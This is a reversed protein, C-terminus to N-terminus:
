TNRLWPRWPCPLGPTPRPSARRRGAPGWPRDHGLGLHGERAQLLRFLNGVDDGIELRMGSRDRMARAGPCIAHALDPAALTVVDVDDDGAHRPMGRRGTEVADVEQVIRQRFDIVPRDIKGGFEEPPPQLKGNRAEEIVPPGSTASRMLRAMASAACAMPKAMPTPECRMDSVVPSRCPSPGSSRRMAGSMASRRCDRRPAAPQV